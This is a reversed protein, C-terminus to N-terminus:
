EEMTLVQVNLCQQLGGQHLPNFEDVKTVMGDEQCALLM